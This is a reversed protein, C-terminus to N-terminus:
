HQTVFGTRDRSCEGSRTHGYASASQGRRLCAAQWARTGKDMLVKKTGRKVEGPEPSGSRRARGPSGAAGRRPATEARGAVGAEPTLGLAVVTAPCWSTKGTRQELSLLVVRVCGQRFAEGRGAGSPRHGSVVAWRWEEGELVSFCVPPQELLLM